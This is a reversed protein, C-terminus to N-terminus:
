GHIGPQVALWKVAVQIWMRRTVRKSLVAHRHSIHFKLIVISM